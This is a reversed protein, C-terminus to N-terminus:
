FIFPSNVLIKQLKEQLSGSKSILKYSPLSALSGTSHRTGSLQLSNEDKPWQTSWYGVVQFPSNKKFSPIVEHYCIIWM